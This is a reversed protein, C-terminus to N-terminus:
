QRPFFKHIAYAVLSRVRFVASFTNSRPRLHAIERLFELSHRKKQLPYDSDSGAEIIVKKAKIEFPQKAEPTLVFHGEIDFARFRLKQYKKLTILSKTKM